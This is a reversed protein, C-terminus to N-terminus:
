REKTVTLVIFLQLLIVPLEAGELLSSLGRLNLVKCIKISCIFLLLLM